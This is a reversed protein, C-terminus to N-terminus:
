ENLLRNLNKKLKVKTFKELEAILQLIKDKSPEPLNHGGSDAGINIQIPNIDQLMLVFEVLDFDMIPEITVYKNSYPIEAFEYVRSTIKPSNKMIDEYWRNTELTVCLAFKEIAAINAAYDSFAKPNKTQFLYGNKDYKECHQLTKIIWEPHVNEAFMDCSSGVFIFNGEGLDMKRENHDFRVDKLHGWRKM